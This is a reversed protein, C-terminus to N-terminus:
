RQFKGYRKMATWVNKSGSIRASLISIGLRLDEESYCDRLRENWELLEQISKILYCPQLQSCEEMLDRIRAIDHTYALSGLHYSTLM